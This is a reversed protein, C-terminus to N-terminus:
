SSEARAELAEGIGRVADLGRLTVNIGALVNAFRAAVLPNRDQLYSWAFGM